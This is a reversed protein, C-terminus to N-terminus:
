RPEQYIQPDENDGVPRVMARGTPWLTVFFMFAVLAPLLNPLMAQDVFCGAMSFIGGIELALWVSIMGVVYKGPAITHGSWYAKFVHGRWFFSGPVGVLLYISAAMFWLHHPVPAASGDARIGLTWVVCLFMLFPIVLLVVWTVWAIRLATRVSLTGRPTMAGDQTAVNAM